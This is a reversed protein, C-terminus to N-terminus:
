YVKLAAGIPFAGLAARGDQFTLPMSGSFSLGGIKLGGLRLGGITFGGGKGVSLPTTGSLRGDPGVTLMGGAGQLSLGGLAIKADAVTMVGRAATWSQVAAPWTPGRLASLHSLRADWTLDLTPALRALNAFRSLKGNEIRILLAGQDDPGPQLHLELRSASSLPAPQGGPAPSLILDLGEFSFRPRPSGFAGISARIARGAVALPGKAPRTLTLGQDAVFIWHDAGYPTTEGKLIPASVGWGSPEILKPDELTLDLRFPWGDIKLASWSAQYGKGRLAKAQASLESQLRLDMTWWVGTWAILAALVLAYPAWLWFRRHRKPQPVASPDPM